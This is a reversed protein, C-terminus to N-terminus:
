LAQGQFRGPDGQESGGSFLCCSNCGPRRTLAAAGCAIVVTHLPASPRSTQKAADKVESQMRRNAERLELKKQIQEKKDLDLTRKAKAIAQENHKRTAEAEAALRTEKEARQELQCRKQQATEDAKRAQKAVEMAEEMAMRDLLMQDMEAEEAKQEHRKEETIGQLRRLSQQYIVRQEVKQEREKQMQLQEQQAQYAQVVGWETIAAPKYTRRLRPAPATLWSVTPHVAPYCCREGVPM